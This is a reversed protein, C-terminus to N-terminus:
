EKREGEILLTRVDNPEDTISKQFAEVEKSLAKYSEDTFGIRDMITILARLATRNDKSQTALEHLRGVYEPLRSVFFDTAAEIYRSKLIKLTSTYESRFQEDHVLWKSVLADSIGFEAALEGGKLKPHTAWYVAVLPKLQEFRNDTSRIEVDGNNVVNNM